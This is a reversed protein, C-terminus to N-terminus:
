RNGGRVRDARRAAARAINERRKEERRERRREEHHDLEAAPVNGTIADAIFSFSLRSRTM